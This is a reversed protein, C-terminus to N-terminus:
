ILWRTNGRMAAASHRTAQALVRARRRLGTEIQRVTRPEWELTLWSRSKMSVSATERWSCGPFIASVTDEQGNSYRATAWGRAIAWRDHRRDGRRSVAMEHFHQKRTGTPHDGIRLNVGAGGPRDPVPVDEGMRNPRPTEATPDSFVVPTKTLSRIAFSNKSQVPNTRADRVFRAGLLQSTIGRPAEM